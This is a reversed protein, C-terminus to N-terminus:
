QIKAESDIGVEAGVNFNLQFLELGSKGAQRIAAPARVEKFAPHNSVQQMLEAANVATGAISVKEGIQEYRSLWVDDALLQTVENLSKAPTPMKGRIINLADITKNKDALSSRVRIVDRSEAQLQRYKIDLNHQEYYKYVVPVSFIGVLCLLCAGLLYLMKKLRYVYRLNRTHEAFGNIVVYTNNVQAWIEATLTNDISKAALFALVASKSVIAVIIVDMEPTTKILRWGYTTDESSFPSSADVELAVVSTASVGASRPVNISRTLVMSDPLLHAQSEIIAAPRGVIIETNEDYCYLRVPADLLNRFRSGQPMFATKWAAFFDRFVHRLDFGFLMWQHSSASM